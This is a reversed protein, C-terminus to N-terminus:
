ELILPLALPLTPHFPPRPSPSPPFLPLPIPSPSFLSPLSPHPVWHHHSTPPLSSPPPTLHPFPSPSLLHSLPPPRPHLVLLRYIFLVDFCVKTVYTCVQHTNHSPPHHHVPDLLPSEPLSQSGGGGGIGGQGLDGTAHLPSIPTASSTPSDLQTPQPPALADFPPIRGRNTAGASLTVTQM